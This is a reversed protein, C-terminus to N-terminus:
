RFSTRTKGVPISNSDGLDISSGMANELDELTQSGCTEADVDPDVQEQSRSSSQRGGKLSTWTSGKSTRKQGRFSDPRTFSRFNPQLGTGDRVHSDFVQTGANGLVPTPARAFCLIRRLVEDAHADNSQLLERFLGKEASMEETPRYGDSPKSLRITSCLDQLQEFSSSTVTLRMGGLDAPVEQGGTRYDKWKRKGFASNNKSSGSIGHTGGFFSQRHPASGEIGVLIASLHGTEHTICLHDRPPQLGQAMKQRAEKHTKWAWERTITGFCKSYGHFGELQVSQESTQFTGGVNLNAFLREKKPLRCKVRYAEYQFPVQGVSEAHHFCVSRPADCKYICMEDQAQRCNEVVIDTAEANLNFLTHCYRSVASAWAEHRRRILTPMRVDEMRRPTGMRRPEEPTSGSAAEPESAAASAALHVLVLEDGEHTAELVLHIVVGHCRLEGEENVQLALEKDEVLHTYLQDAEQESMNYHYDQLLTKLDQVTRLAPLQMWSKQTSPTAPPGDELGETSDSAWIKSNGHQLTPVSMVGFDDWRLYVHGNQVDKSFSAPHQSTKHWGARRLFPYGSPGVFLNSLPTPNGLGGVPIDLGIHHSGIGDSLNQTVHRVSGKLVREYTQSSASLGVAHTAAWRTYMPKPPALEQWDHAGPDGLLLFNLFDKWPVGDLRILIRSGHCLASALPFPWPRTTVGNEEVSYTLGCTALCLMLRKLFLVRRDHMSMDQPSIRPLMPAHRANQAFMTQYMLVVSNRMDSTMAHMCAAPNLICHDKWSSGWLEKWQKRSRPKLDDYMLLRFRNPRCNEVEFVHRNERVMVKVIASTVPIDKSPTRREMEVIEGPAKSSVTWYKLVADYKTGSVKALFSRRGTMRTDPVIRAVLRLRGQMRLVRPVRFDCPVVAALVNPDELDTSMLPLTYTHFVQTKRRRCCAAITDCELSLVLNLPQAKHGDRLTFEMDHVRIVEVVSQKFNKLQKMIVSVTRPLPAWMSALVESAEWESGWREKHSKPVVESEMDSFFDLGESSMGQSTKHSMEHSYATAESAESATAQVISFTVDARDVGSSATEGGPSSAEGGQGPKANPCTDTCTETGETTCREAGEAACQEAGRASTQELSTTQMGDLAELEALDGLCPNVQPPM